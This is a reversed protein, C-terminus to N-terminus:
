LKRRMLLHTPTADYLVFGLREYLRRAPNPRLVQLEVHRNVRAAEAIVHGVIATGLGRNQYRPLIELQALYRHDKRDHVEFMGADLGDVQMIRKPAPDFAEDFRQRQDADEWGFVEEVYPRMTARKLAFLWERDGPRVPRISFKPASPSVSPM